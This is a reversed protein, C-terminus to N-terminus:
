KWAWKGDEDVFIVNGFRDRMVEVFWGSDITRPAEPTDDFDRILSGPFVCGGDVIHGRCYQLLDNDWAVGDKPNVTYTTEFVGNMPDPISKGNALNVYFIEEHAPHRGDDGWYYYTIKNVM